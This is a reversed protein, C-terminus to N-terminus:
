VEIIELYNGNIIVQYQVGDHEIKGDVMQFSDYDDRYACDMLGNANRRIPFIEHDFFRKGFYYPTCIGVQCKDSRSVQRYGDDGRLTISAKLEAKQTKNNLMFRANVYFMTNAIGCEVNAGSYLHTHVEDEVIVLIHLTQPPKAYELPFIKFKIKHFDKDNTIEFESMYIWMTKLMKKMPSEQISEDEMPYGPIFASDEQEKELEIQRLVEQAQANEDSIGNFNDDMDDFFSAIESTNERVKKRNIKNEFEKEEKEIEENKQKIKEKTEEQRKEIKELKRAEMEKALIQDSPRKQKKDFYMRNVAVPLLERWTYDRYEEETSCVTGYYIDIDTNTNKVFNMMEVTAMGIKEKEPAAGPGLINFKEGGIRYFNDKFYKSYIDSLQKLVLDGKERGETQNVREMNITMCTVFYANGEAEMREIDEEFATKSRCGLTDYYLRHRMDELQEKYYQAADFDQVEVPEQVINTEVTEKVEKKRGFLGM